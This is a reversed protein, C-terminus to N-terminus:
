NSKAWDCNPCIYDDTDGLEEETINVCEGHFWEDCIDCQVMFQGSDPGNCICYVEEKGEMEELDMQSSLEAKLERQIKKIWAPRMAIKCPKMRDHSTTMSGKQLRVKYLYPSIRREVVAPGKWPPGLKRSQGKVTAANLIYVVDGVDYQRMYLKVDYNRKMVEVNSKLIKRATEHATKIGQELQGVYDTYDAEEQEKEITPFVLDAPMYVERGLMLMNPTFGTHRNVSARLAGAIQPLLKDWSNQNRGVFCRVADM